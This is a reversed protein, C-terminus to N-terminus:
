GVTGKRGGSCDGDDFCGIWVAVVPPEWVTGNVAWFFRDMLSPAVRPTYLWVQPVPGTCTVDGIEVLGTQGHAIVPGTPKPDPFDELQDRTARVVKIESWDVTRTRLNPSGGRAATYTPLPNFGMVEWCGDHDDGDTVMIHPGIWRPWWGLIGWAALLLMAVLGAVILLDRRVRM